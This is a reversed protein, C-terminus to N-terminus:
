NPALIQLHQGLSLINSSADFRPDSDKISQQQFKNDM